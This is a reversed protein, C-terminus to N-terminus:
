YDWEDAPLNVAGGDPMGVDIGDDIIIVDSGYYPSGWVGNGHHYHNVGRYRSGTTSSTSDCGVMSFILVLLVAINKSAKMGKEIVKMNM